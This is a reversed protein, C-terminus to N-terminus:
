VNGVRRAWESRFREHACRMTKELTGDERMIQVELRVDAVQAGLKVAIDEVGFGDILLSRVRTQWNSNGLANGM